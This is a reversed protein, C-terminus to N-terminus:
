DAMSQFELTLAVSRPQMIEIWATQGWIVLGALHHWSSLRESRSNSDTFM